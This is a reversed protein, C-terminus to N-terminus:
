ISTSVVSTFLGADQAVWIPAMVESLANYVARLSMEQASAAQLNLMFFFVVLVPRFKRKGIM